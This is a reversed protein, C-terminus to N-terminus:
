QTTNVQIIDKVTQETGDNLNEMPIATIHINPRGYRADTARM